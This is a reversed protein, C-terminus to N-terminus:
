WSGSRVVREYEKLGDYVAPFQSLTVSPANISWTVGKLHTHAEPNRAQSLNSLNRTLADKKTADVKKELKEVNIIGILQILMKRFHDEYDFGHTPKVVRKEVYRKNAAEKLKQNAYRLILDDMSEEIWGCLELLALKSYFLAEKSSSANRYMM